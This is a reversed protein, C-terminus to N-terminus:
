AGTSHNKRGEEADWGIQQLHSAVNTASLEELQLGSQLVQRVKIVTMLESQMHWYPACVVMNFYVADVVMAGAAIVGSVGEADAQLTYPKSPWKVLYYGM